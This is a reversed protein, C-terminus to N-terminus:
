PGPRAPEQKLARRRALQGSGDARDRRAVRQERRLDRAAHDLLVYPPRPSRPALSTIAPIMMPTIARSKAM